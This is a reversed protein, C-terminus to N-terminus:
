FNYGVGIYFGVKGTYNSWNINGTIPGFFTNYSYEIGAGFLDRGKLYTKFNESDKSYNFIGTLYHNKAFNFRFDAKYTTLIRNMVAVDSIGYFPIQQSVYRGAMVGGMANLYPLPTADGMLFRYNLSPIFAFIKGIPLVVKADLQLAHFNKFEIPFGAFTWAYSVGATFGKKPFYGSDFTDARAEAFLSLFDNHAQDFESHTLSYFSRMNFYDNRIGLKTDFYSWKINSFFVEQRANLYSLQTKDEMLGLVSMNAYRFSALANITPMRLGDFSYLFEFSPNTSLKTTFNYSSGHLRRSFFGANILISVIEETDARLGIGLQHAPGRKCDINLNFPEENGLLQYEVSAYANTGFIRAIEHEVMSRTVQKKNKLQMDKLLIVAEEATATTIYIQNLQVTDKNIDIAKPKAPLRYSIGRGLKKKVTNLLSDQVAAAEYGRHIITDISATDFSLMHYGKLNPKITVYPVLINKEFSEIGLMDIGQILIDGINHIEDYSKQSDSLDVGIIIDAGMEKALTTPYNDRMAGDVLVMGDVRVPTFMGPISMTSRLATKINGSFWFKAKGSVLDAAVCAFPIPLDVFDISDQYAVTLSTLINSINQGRIYGSPLSQLLNDKLLDTADQEGAGINVKERVKKRNMNSIERADFHSRSRPFKRHHFPIALLYKEKYKAWNYSVYNRPVKDSLAIKWDMNTLLSDLDDATYGMSYLGGVLGGMSTGVVLDIPIQLSDLYQLVGVHAAGKAGGGSLVLGVTPRHKRIEAMKKRVKAISEKDAQPDVGRAIITNDSFCFLLICFLFSLVIRM